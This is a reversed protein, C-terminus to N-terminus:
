SSSARSTSTSTTSRSTQARSTSREPMLAQLDPERRQGVRHESRIGVAHVAPRDGHRHVRDLAARHRGRRRRRRGGVVARPRDGRRIRRHPGRLHHRRRRRRGRDGDELRARRLNGRTRRRSGFLPVQADRPRRHLRGHRSPRGQDVATDYDIEGALFGERGPDYFNNAAGGAAEASRRAAAEHFLYDERRVLVGGNVYMAEDAEIRAQRDREISEQAAAYGEPDLRQCAEDANARWQEFREEWTMALLDAVYAEDTPGPLDSATADALGRANRLAPHTGVNATLEPSRAALEHLEELTPEHGLELLRLARHALRAKEEHKLAV